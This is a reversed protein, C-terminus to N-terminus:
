YSSAELGDRCCSRWVDKEQTCHFWFLQSIGVKCLEKKVRDRWRLKTGHAPRKQPLWGFLLKKPIGVDDMRAVHRLWRLRRVTIVEEPSENM